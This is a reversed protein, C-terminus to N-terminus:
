GKDESWGLLTRMRAQEAKMGENHLWARHEATIVGRRIDNAARREFNARLARYLEIDDTYLQAREAYTLDEFKTMPM